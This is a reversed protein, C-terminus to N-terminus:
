PKAMGAVVAEDYISGDPDSVVIELNQADHLALSKRRIPAHGPVVRTNFIPTSDASLELSMAHGSVGAETSTQGVVVDLSRYMGGLPLTVTGTPVSSLTVLLAHGVIEGGVTASGPTADGTLQSTDPTLDALPVEHTAPKPSHPVTPAGQPRTTQREGGQTGVVAATGGGLGLVSILGILVQFWGPLDRWWNFRDQARRDDDVV